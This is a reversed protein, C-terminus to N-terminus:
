NNQIKKLISKEINDNNATDPATKEIDINKLSIEVDEDLVEREEGLEKPVPLDHFNPPLILPDKKQVLFEDTSTKKGGMLGRKVEGCSSGIFFILVLLINFIKKMILM